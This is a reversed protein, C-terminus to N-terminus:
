QGNKKKKPKEEVVKWEEIGEPVVNWFMPYIQSNEKDIKVFFDGMVWGMLYVPVNKINYLPLSSANYVSLPLKVRVNQLNVDKALDKIEM